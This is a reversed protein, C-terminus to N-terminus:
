AAVGQALSGEEATHKTAYVRWGLLRGADALPAEASAAHGRASRVTTAPGRAM